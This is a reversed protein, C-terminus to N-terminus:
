VKSNQSSLKTVSCPLCLLHQETCTASLLSSVLYCFHAGLEPKLSKRIGKQHSTSYDPNGEYM